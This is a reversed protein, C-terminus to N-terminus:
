LPRSLFYRTNGTPYEMTGFVEFGLAEYFPRAQFDYTDLMIKEAGHKRGHAMAAEVVRRGWGASRLDPDLWLTRIEVVGLNVRGGAGGKLMGAADRLFISFYRSDWDSRERNFAILRADLEYLADDEGEAFELTLDM